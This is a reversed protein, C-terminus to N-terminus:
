NACMGSLLRCPLICNVFLYFPLLFTYLTQDIKNCAIIRFPNHQFLMVNCSCMCPWPSYHQQADTSDYGNNVHNWTVLPYRNPTFGM